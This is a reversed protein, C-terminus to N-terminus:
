LSSDNRLLRLVDDETKLDYDGTIGSRHYVVGKEQNITIYRSFQEIGYEKICRVFARLKVNEVSLMDRDCPADECEWCGNIGKKRCCNYQYCGQPAMRKGCHNKGKCSCTAKSQCLNCILGCYAILNNSEKTTMYKEQKIRKNYITYRLVNFSLLHFKKLTAYNNLVVM